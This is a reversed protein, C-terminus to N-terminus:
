NNTLLTSVDWYGTTGQTTANNYIVQNDANYVTINIKQSHDVATIYAQLTYGTQYTFEAKASTGTVDFARYQDPMGYGVKCNDCTVQIYGTRKVNDTTDDNTHNKSCGAAAIILPIFLFALKKM